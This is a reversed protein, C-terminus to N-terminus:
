FKIQMFIKLLQYWRGDKDCWSDHYGFVTQRRQCIGWFISRETPLRYAVNAFSRSCHFRDHSVVAMLSWRDQFVVCKPCFSRCKLMVSGTVLSWRDECVLNKHGMPHDKLVPQVTYFVGQINAAMHCIVHIIHNFTTPYTLDHFHNKSYKDM